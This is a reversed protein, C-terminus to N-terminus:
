QQERQARRAALRKQINGYIALVGFLAAAAAISWIVALLFDAYDGEAIINLGAVVLLAAVLVIFSAMSSLPTKHWLLACLGFVLLAVVAILPNLASSTAFVAVAEAPVRPNLILGQFYFREPLQPKTGVGAPGVGSAQKGVARGVLLNANTLQQENEASIFHRRETQAAGAPQQTARMERLSQEFYSEAPLRELTGSSSILRYGRPLQLVWGLRLVRVGVLSPVSLTVVQLKGLEDQGFEEWQLEVAVPGTVGQVQAIPIKTVEGEATTETLPRVGRGNVRAHWLKAEKPLRIEFIHHARIEWHQEGTTRLLTVSFRNPSIEQWVERLSAGLDIVQM